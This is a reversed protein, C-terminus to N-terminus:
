RQPVQIGLSKLKEAYYRAQNYDGMYSYYNILLQLADIYEPNLELTKKLFYEAEKLRGMQLCLLGYNYHAIDFMPNLLLEKKFEEEAEKYLGRKMYILGLNNHVMVENPDLSLADKYKKEAKELLGEMHYMAGLNRHALTLHPSTKVAYEWFTIKDRFVTSYKYTTISFAAIIPLFISVLVAKKKSINKVLDTELLIMIVGILPMYLRNETLIGYNSLYVMFPPLLFLIVWSLGLILNVSYFKKTTFIAALLLLISIIGYIIPTDKITPLPSLHIPLLMKGIYQVLAIPVVYLLQKMASLQIANSNTLANCRLVLWLSITAVWVIYLLINKKSLLKKRNLILFLIGIIPIFLATEKTFVALLFFIEQLLFYLWSSTNLISFNIFATFWLLTFIALLIDNRGPIWAVNCTLAPHLAFILSFLLSLAKDYKLKLLLSFLLCSAILHLVVNTLHYVLPEKNGVQAELIFLINMIPRYLTIDPARFVGKFVGKLFTLPINALNKNFYYNGVILQYDDLYTFNFFLTHFYIGGCLLIIILYFLINNNKMGVGM